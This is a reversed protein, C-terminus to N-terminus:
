ARLGRGRTSGRSRIYINDILDDGPGKPCHQGERSNNRTRELRGIGGRRWQTIRSAESDLEGDLEGSPGPSSGESRDDAM